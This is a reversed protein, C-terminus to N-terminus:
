IRFRDRCRSLFLSLVWNLTWDRVVLVLGLHISPFWRRRQRQIWYVFRHWRIRLRYSTMVQACGWCRCVVPAIAIPSPRAVVHQGWLPFSCQWGVFGYWIFIWGSDWIKLQDELVGSSWRRDDGYLTARARGYGSLALSVRDCAFECRASVLPARCLSFSSGFPQVLLIWSRLPSSLVASAVGDIRALTSPQHFGLTQRRM